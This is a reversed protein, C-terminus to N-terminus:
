LLEQQVQMLLCGQLSAFGESSVPVTLQSQLKQAIYKHFDACPDTQVLM